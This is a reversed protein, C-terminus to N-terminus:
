FFDRRSVIGILIGDEVVPLHKFDGRVMLDLADAPSTSTTITVPSPTMVEELQRKESKSTVALLRNADTETFVGLLMTDDTVLICRITRERMLSVAEAVTASSPLTTLNQASIIEKISTVAM